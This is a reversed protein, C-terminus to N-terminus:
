SAPWHQTVPSTSMLPAPTPSCGGGTGNRRWGSVPSRGRRPRRKPPARPAPSKASCWSAPTKAATMSSGTPEVTVSRWRAADKEALDDLLLLFKTSRSPLVTDRVTLTRKEPDASRGSAALAMAVRVEPPAIDEKATDPSQPSQGTGPQFVPRFVVVASLLIVATVTAILLLRDRLTLRQWLRGVRGAAAPESGASSEGRRRDLPAMLDDLKSRM